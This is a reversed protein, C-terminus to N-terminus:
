AKGKLLLGKVAGRRHGSNVSAPRRSTALAFLPGRHPVPLQHEQPTREYDKMTEVGGWFPGSDRSFGLFCPKPHKNGWRAITKPLVPTVFCCQEQETERVFSPPEQLSDWGLGPFVLLRMRCVTSFLFSRHFDFTFQFSPSWYIILLGGFISSIFTFRTTLGTSDEEGGGFVRFRQKERSGHRSCFSTLFWLIGGSLTAFFDLCGMPWVRSFSCERSTQMMKLKWCRRQRRMTRRWFSRVASFIPLSQFYISSSYSSQSYRFM